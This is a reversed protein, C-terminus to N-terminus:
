LFVSVMMGVLAVTSSSDYFNIVAAAAATTTTTTTTTTCALVSRSDFIAEKSLLKLSDYERQFYKALELVHDETLNEDRLYVYRYYWWWWWTALLWGVSEAEWSNGSGVAIVVMVVM